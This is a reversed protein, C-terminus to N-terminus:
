EKITPTESQEKSPKKEMSEDRRNWIRSSSLILLTFSVSLPLFFVPSLVLELRSVVVADVFQM